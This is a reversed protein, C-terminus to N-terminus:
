IVLKVAFFLKWVCSNNENEYNENKKETRLQVSSYTKMKAASFNSKSGIKLKKGHDSNCTCSVCSRAHALQM